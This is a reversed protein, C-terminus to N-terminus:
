RLSHDVLNRDFENIHDIIKDSIHDSDAHLTDITSM